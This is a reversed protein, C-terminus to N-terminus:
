GIKLIQNKRNHVVKMDIFDSCKLNILIEFDLCFEFDYYATFSFGFFFFLYLSFFLFLFLFVSFCFAFQASQASGIGAHLTCPTLEPVVQGVTAVSAGPCPEPLGRRTASALGLLCFHSWKTAEHKRTKQRQLRVHIMM